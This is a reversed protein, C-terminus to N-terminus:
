ILRLRVLLQHEINLKCLINHTKLINTKNNENIKKQSNAWNKVTFNIVEEKQEKTFGNHNSIQPLELIDTEEKPSDSSPSNYKESLVVPLIKPNLSSEFSSTKM